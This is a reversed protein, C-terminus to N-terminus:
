TRDCGGADRWGSIVGEAVDGFDFIKAFTEITSQDFLDNSVSM